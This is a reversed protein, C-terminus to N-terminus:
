KVSKHQRGGNRHSKGIRGGGGAGGRLGSREILPKAAIVRDLRHDVLRDLVDGGVLADVVEEGAGINRAQAALEGVLDADRRTPGADIRAAVHLRRMGAHPDAVALEIRQHLVDALCEVFELHRLALL